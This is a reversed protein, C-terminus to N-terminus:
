GKPQALPRRHRWVIVIMIIGGFLITTCYLGLRSLNGDSDYYFPGKLNGVNFLAPLTAIFIGLDFKRIGNLLVGKRVQWCYALIMLFTVFFSDIRLWGLPELSYITRLGLAVYLIPLLM